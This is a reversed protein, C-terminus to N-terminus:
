RRNWPQGGYTRDTSGDVAHHRSFPLPCNLIASRRSRHPPLPLLWRPRREQGAPARPPPLPRSPRLLLLPLTKTPNQGGDARGRSAEDREGEQSHQTPRHFRFPAPSSSAETLTSVRLRERIVLPPPWTYITSRSKVAKVVLSGWSFIKFM